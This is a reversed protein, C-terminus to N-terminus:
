QVTTIVNGCFTQRCCDIYIYVYADRAMDIKKRGNRGGVTNVSYDCLSQSTDIGMFRWSVTSIDAIIQTGKKSVMWRQVPSVQRSLYKNPFYLTVLFLFFLSSDIADVWRHHFKFGDMASNSILSQMLSLCISGFFCGGSSTLWSPFLVNLTVGRSIGKGATFRHTKRPSGSRISHALHLTLFPRSATEQQLSPANWCSM